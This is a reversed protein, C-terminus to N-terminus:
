RGRRRQYKANSEGILEQGQPSNIGIVNITQGVGPESARLGAAGAIRDRMGANPDVILRRVEVSSSAGGSGGGGFSGGGAGGVRSIGKRGGLSAGLAILATAAAIAVVPNLSQMATVIASQMIAAKLAAAGIDLFVSGFGQLIAAGLQRFGDEIGGQALGRAFGMALGNVIANSLADAIGQDIRVQELVQENLRRVEDASFSAELQARIRAADMQRQPQPRAFVDTGVIPRVGVPLIVAKSLAAARQAAESREGLSKTGDRLIANYQGHLKIAEILEKSTLREAAGLASLNQIREAFRRRAEEEREKRKQEIADFAADVKAQEDFARQQLEVSAEFSKRRAAVVVRSAQEVADTEEKLFAKLQEPPMGPGLAQARLAARAFTSASVPTQGLAEARRQALAREAARLGAEAVKVAPALAKVPDDLRDFEDAAKKLEETTERIANKARQFYDLLALGSTVGISAIAGGVGFFAAFSAASQALTRFGVQGGSALGSIAFAAANFGTIARSSFASLKGSTATVERGFVQVVNAQRAQTAAAAAVRREFQQVVTSFRAQAESSANIQRMWEQQAAATARLEAVAVDSTADVTRAQLSFLRTSEAIEKNLAKLAASAQAGATTGAKGAKDFYLGLPTASAATKKAEADVQRLRTLLEAGGTESIRLSLAGLEAM